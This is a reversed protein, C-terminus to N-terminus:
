GTLVLRLATALLFLPSTLSSSNVCCKLFVLEASLAALAGFTKTKTKPKQKTPNKEGLKRPFYLLSSLTWCLKWVALTLPHHPYGSSKWGQLSGSITYKAQIDRNCSFILVWLILHTVLSNEAMISRLTPQYNFISDETKEAKAFDDCINVSDGKPSASMYGWIFLLPM